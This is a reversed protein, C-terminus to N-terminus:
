SLHKTRVSQFSTRRLCTSLTTGEAAVLALLAVTLLGVSLLWLAASGCATAIGL